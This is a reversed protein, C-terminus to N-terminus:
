RVGAGSHSRPRPTPPRARPERTEPTQQLLGAPRGLLDGRERVSSSVPPMWRSTSPSSLLATSAAMTSAAAAQRGLDIAIEQQGHEVRALRHPGGGDAVADGDRVHAIRDQKVHVLREDGEAQQALRHFEARHIALRHVRDEEHHAGRNGRVEPDEGLERERQAVRFQPSSSFSRASSPVVARACGRGRAHLRGPRERDFLRGPCHIRGGEQDTTDPQDEQAADRRQHERPSGPESIEDVAHEHKRAQQAQAPAPPATRSPPDGMASDTAAARARPATPWRQDIGERPPEQEHEARRPPLWWSRCSSGRAPARAGAPRTPAHAHKRKQEGRHHHDDHRMGGHEEQQRPLDHRQAGVEEDHELPVAFLDTAGAQDVEHQRM